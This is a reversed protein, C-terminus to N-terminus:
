PNVVAWIKLNRPLFASAHEVLEESGASPRGSRETRDTGIGESILVELSKLLQRAVILGNSSVTTQRGLNVKLLQGLM